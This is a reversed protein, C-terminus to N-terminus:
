YLFDFEFSYQLMLFPILAILIRGYALAIKITRSDVNMLKLISKLFIQGIIVMIAGMIIVFEILMSLIRSARDNQGMGLTRAILAAGGTGVMFGISGIIMAFPMVLNVASFANEGVVNSVFLGDVISYINIIIMMGIMPLTFRILKKYTNHGELLNSM